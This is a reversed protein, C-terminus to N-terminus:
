ITAIAQQVADITKKSSGIFVQDGVLMVPRKLFTYEALILRRYDDETLEKEHWGQLRYKRARRSFLDTYSDVQDRLEDLQASTIPETKIDQMTFDDGNNLAAIVKQCTNCTSLYYLKPTM